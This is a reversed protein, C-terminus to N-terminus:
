RDLDGSIVGRVREREVDDGASDREVSAPLEVQQCVPGVREEVGFGM